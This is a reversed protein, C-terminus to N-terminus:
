NEIIGIVIGNAFPFPDNYKLNKVNEWDTEIWEDVSIRKLCYKKTFQIKGEKLLKDMEFNYGLPLTVVATGGPRLCKKLNEIAHLIKMPTRPSEDLGIHELTSISVILDYKESPQFDVMDQNIVGDAKEHKDLIDHDVPFYHSLVNGLELIRKGRNNKVINWIVPVEVTRENVWTTNYIHYFYSFNDGQFTFTRSSKFIKYYPYMFSIIVFWIIYLIGKKKLIEKTMPLFGVSKKFVNPKGM